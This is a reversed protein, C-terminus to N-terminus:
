SSIQRRKLSSQEPEASQNRREGESWLASLALGVALAAVSPQESESSGAKVGSEAVASTSSEGHAAGTRSETWEIDRGFLTDLSEVLSRRFFTEHDASATEDTPATEGTPVATAFGSWSRSLGYDQRGLTSLTDAATADVPLDSADSLFSDSAASNGGAATDHLGVTDHFSATSSLAARVVSDVAAPSFVSASLGNGTSSSAQNSAAAQTFTVGAPLLGLSAEASATSSDDAVMTLDALTDVAAARSTATTGSTTLMTWKSSAQSTSNYALVLFEYTTGPAMGSISVATTSAGVSGLSATQGGKMYYIDYGTAGPSATWSLRGTTNSTATATLIPATLTSTTAAAPMVVSVWATSASSTANYASVYFYQTS